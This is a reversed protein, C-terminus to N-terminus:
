EPQPQDRRHSTRVPGGGSAVSGSMRTDLPLLRNPTASRPKEHPSQPNASPCRMIKMPPARCGGIGIGAFQCIPVGCVVSNLATPVDAASSPMTLAAAPGLAPGRGGVFSGGGWIACICLCAYASSSRLLVSSPSSSWLASKFLFHSPPASFPTSDSFEKPSDYTPCGLRELPRTASPALRALLPRYILCWTCM